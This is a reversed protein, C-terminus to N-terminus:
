IDGILRFLEAQEIGATRGGDRLRDEIRTRFAQLQEHDDPDDIQM